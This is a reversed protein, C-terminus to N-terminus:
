QCQLGGVTALASQRAHEFSCCWEGLENQSDDV